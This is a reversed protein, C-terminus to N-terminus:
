DSISEILAAYQMPDSTEIKAIVAKAIKSIADIDIPELGRDFHEGLHSYENVVRNILNITITDNEFFKDLRQDLSLKHSPYKYFLYAELFKRMNNGFGYQYKNDLTEEDECSCKYIQNFLYNFETIYNKLYDPALKLQTNTKNIREVIFQKLSNKSRSESYIKDTPITLKRLYKLFDLNHTSIFLQGYKKPKTIISEILSFMFFIHNSDLSSIPDDIYIILKNNNLEDKMEDEMRAIFYCFSILSCEGESLNNADIGDRIIKFTMNPSEGAAILKLEDHGFFHTLHRNVLEAGKNEDQAQRKLTEKEENLEDIEEQKKSKEKEATTVNKSALEIEQLKKHYDIDKIFKAVESIRLDSRAKQQDNALTSTKNNHETILLNFEKILELISESEDNIEGLVREKFIDNEREQLGVILNDINKSYLGSAMSWRKILAEFKLHISAYFMEKELILFENLSKKANELTQIKAKLVERLEESEKSFHADLKDWLDESLSSGCFGCTKRKGKHKDIGDRVWRQLLSDNILDTIPQSPKIVRKLLENTQSYFASFNPKSETLPTIGAKSEEKLLKKKEAIQEDTLIPTKVATPIDANITSITYTPYNYISANTKIEKAKTRLSDDLSNRKTEHQKNKLDYEKKKESLEFLLGKKEEENGLKEELFKIQKDLIVNKAGLITFPKIMGDENDLWSLNEKVFDTNYVRIKNERGFNSLNNPTIITADDLTIAFDCDEYNKHMYGDEISKFIRALLTKGSYNRGYIINLKKFTEDRGITKDWKYNNFRGFKAIDIKKIM